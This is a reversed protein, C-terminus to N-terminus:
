LQSRREVSRGSEYQDRLDREARLWGGLDSGWIGGREIHIEFARQRIEESTPATKRKEEAMDSQVAKRSTM